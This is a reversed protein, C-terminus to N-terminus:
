SLFIGVLASRDKELKSYLVKVKMPFFNEVKGQENARYPLVNAAFFEELRLNMGEVKIYALYKAAKRSGKPFFKVAIIEGDVISFHPNNKDYILLPDTLLLQFLVRVIKLGYYSGIFCVVGWISPGIWPFNSNFILWVMLVGTGFFVLTTLLLILNFFITGLHQFVFVKKIRKADYLEIENRYHLNKLSKHM